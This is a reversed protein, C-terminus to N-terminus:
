EFLPAQDEDGDEKTRAAALARNTAVIAALVEERTGSSALAALRTAESFDIAGAESAKDILHHLQDIDSEKPGEEIAEPDKPPTENKTAPSDPKREGGIHDPPATDEKPDDKKTQNVGENPAKKGAENNDPVIATGTDSQQIESTVDEGVKESTDPEQNIMENLDRTDDSVVERSEGIIGEWTTQGDTIATRWGRMEILHDEEIGLFGKVGLVEYIQEDTAGVKKFWEIANTKKEDLTGGKGLSAYKAERLLMNVFVGPIVRFVVNRNAVSVAANATVQIMDDKYRRGKSDTIRRKVEVRQAINKELDLCTAQATVHTDDIGVIRTDIRINGWAYAMVEALRVSPGEIRGQGRSPLVYFMSGASDVDALAMARAQTVVVEIDRPYARATEIQIDIQAKDAATIAVDTGLTEALAGVESEVVAEDSM